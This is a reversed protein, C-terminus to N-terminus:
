WIKCVINHLMYDRFVLSKINIIYRITFMNYPAYKLNDLNNQM